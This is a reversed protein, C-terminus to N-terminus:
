ENNSEGLFEGVAKHFRGRMVWPSVGYKAAIFQHSGAFTSNMKIYNVYEKLLGTFMEIQTPKDIITDVVDEFGTQKASLLGRCRICDKMENAGTNILFQKITDLRDLNVKSLGMWIKIRALQVLDEVMLDSVMRRAIYYLVPELEVILREFGDDSSIADIVLQKWETPM